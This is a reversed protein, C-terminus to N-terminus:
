NVCDTELIGPANFTNEKHEIIYSSTNMTPNHEHLQTRSIIAVVLFETKYKAPANLGVPHLLSQSSQAKM